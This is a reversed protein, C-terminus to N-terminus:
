VRLHPRPPSLDPPEPLSPDPPPPEPEPAPPTMNLRLQEGLNRARAADHHLTNRRLVPPDGPPLGGPPAGGPRPPYAHAGSQIWPTGDKITIHHHGAHVANHHPTCLLALQDINTLGGQAWPTIHHADCQHPPRPCSPIICGKDRAALARRQAPTALRTTRGLNLVAGTPALLVREFVASCGFRELTTPTIFANSTAWARGAATRQDPTTGQSLALLQDATTHVVIRPPEGGTTGAGTLSLTSILGIADARRQSPGREDWGTITGDPDTTAPDPASFFEIATRLQAGTMPDLQGTLIIMGTSDTVMDLRRRTFADPDFARDTRDPDLRDLLQAALAECERPPHATSIQVLFQDVVPGAQARMAVPVKDLVRVAVDLHARSISGAALAQGMGTLAGRGDARSGPQGEPGAADPDTARAADIDARARGPGANCRAGLLGRLNGEGVVSLDAGDLSRVLGLRAAEVARGATEVEILAQVREPVSLSWVPAGLLEQAGRVLAGALRQVEHVAEAVM